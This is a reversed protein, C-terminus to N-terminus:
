KKIFLNKIKQALTQKIKEQQKALKQKYESTVIKATGVISDVNRTTIMSTVKDPNLNKAQRKSKAATVRVRRWNNEIFIDFPNDKILKMSNLQGMAKSVIKNVPENAYHNVFVVKGQFSQTQNRNTIKIM